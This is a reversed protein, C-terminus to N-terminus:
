RTRLKTSFRATSFPVSAQLTAAIRLAGATSSCSISIRQRGILHCGNQVPQSVMPQM